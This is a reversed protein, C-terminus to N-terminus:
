FRVSMGIFPNYDVAAKSLGFNIGADLQFNKTVKYTIGTDLTTNWRSKKETSKEGFLELYVGLAETFDYALVGSNTFLYVYKHHNDARIYSLGTMLGLSLKETFTIDLPVLVGGEYFKNGLHDQNTPFKTFPILGFATKDKGDNGWFNYKFRLFLDGLGEQHTTANAILDKVTVHNYGGFILDLELNHLLGV